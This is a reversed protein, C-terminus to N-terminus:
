TQLNRTWRYLALISFALRKRSLLGSFEVHMTDKGLLVTGNTTIGHLGVAVRSYNWGHVVHCVTGLGLIGSTRTIGQSDGDFRQHVRTFV